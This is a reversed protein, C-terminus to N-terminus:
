RILRIDLGLVDKAEAMRRDSTLIPMDLKQALALCARDGLSLGFRKTPLRLAAARRAQELDFNHVSLELRLIQRGGQEATVGYEILKSM